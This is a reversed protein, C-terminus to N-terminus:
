AGDYRRGRSRLSGKIYFPAEITDQAHALVGRRIDLHIAVKDVKVVFGLPIISGIAFPKEIIAPSFRGRPAGKVM